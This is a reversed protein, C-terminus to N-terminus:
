HIFLSLDSYKTGHCNTLKSDCIKSVNKETNAVASLQQPDEHQPVHNNGAWM